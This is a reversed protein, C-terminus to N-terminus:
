RQSPRQNPFQGASQDIVLHCYHRLSGYGWWFCCRTIGGCRAWVVVRRRSIVAKCRAFASPIISFPAVYASVALYKLTAGEVM